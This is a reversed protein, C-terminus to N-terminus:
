GLNAEFWGASACLQVIHKLLQFDKLKELSLDSLSVGDTLDTEEERTEAFEMSGFHAYLVARLFASISM